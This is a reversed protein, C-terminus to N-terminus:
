EHSEFCAEASAKDPWMRRCGGNACRHITSGPPYAKVHEDMEGKKFWHKAEHSPLCWADLTMRQWDAETLFWPQGKVRPQSGGIIGEDVLPAIDRGRTENIKTSWVRHHMCWWFTMPLTEEVSKVREEEKQSKTRAM